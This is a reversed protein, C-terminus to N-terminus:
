KEDGDQPLAFDGLGASKEQFIIPHSHYLNQILPVAERVGAKSVAVAYALDEPHRRFQGLLAKKVEMRPWGALAEVFEDSPHSSNEFIRVVEHLVDDEHNLAFLEAVVPNERAKLEKILFERGETRGHRYLLAAARLQVEPSTVGKALAQSVVELFQATFPESRNLYKLHLEPERVIEFLDNVDVYVGSEVATRIRSARQEAPLRNFYEEVTLSRASSDEGRISPNIGCATALLLFWLARCAAQQFSSSM